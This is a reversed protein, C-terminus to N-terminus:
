RHVSIQAALWAAELRVSREFIGRRVQVSYPARRMSSRSFGSNRQLGLGTSRRSKKLGELATVESTGRQFQGNTQPSRHM